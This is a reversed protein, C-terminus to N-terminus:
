EAKVEVPVAQTPATLKDLVEYYKEPNISDEKSLGLKQAITAFIQNYENIRLNTAEQIDFIRAKLTLVEQQLQQLQQQM